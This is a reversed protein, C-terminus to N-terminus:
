FANEELLTKGDLTIRLPASKGSQTLAVVLRLQNADIQEIAKGAGEPVYFADLGYDMAVTAAGPPSALYGRIALKGGDPAQRSVGVPRGVGDADAELLVYATDGESFATGKPFLGADIRNIELNVIVYDGRLLDRPDVPRMALTVERGSMHVGIREALPTAVLLIQILAIVGWKLWPNRIAALM